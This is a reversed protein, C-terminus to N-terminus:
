LGYGPKSLNSRIEQELRKSEEFQENLQDTLRKMKEEFPEGNDEVEEAGVYRGPTLVHGHSSVEELSASKCLGKVDEYKGSGLM